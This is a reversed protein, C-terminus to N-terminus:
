ASSPLVASRCRPTPARFSGAARVRAQRSLQRRRSAGVTANAGVSVSWRELANLRAELKQIEQQMEAKRQELSDAALGPLAAMAVVCAAGTGLLATRATKIRM